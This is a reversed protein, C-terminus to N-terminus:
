RETTSFPLDHHQHNAAFQVLLDAALQANALDRHLSVSASNHLLHLSAREGIQHTQGGSETNCNRRFVSRTLTRNKENTRDAPTATKFNKCDGPSQQHMSHRLNFRIWPSPTGRSFRLQTKSDVAVRLFLPSCLQRGALTPRRASTGQRLCNRM